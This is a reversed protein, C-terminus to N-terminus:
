RGQSKRANGAKREHPPTAPVAFLNQFESDLEELMANFPLGIARCLLWLQLVDLRTDGTEWRSILRQMQQRQRAAAKDTLGTSPALLEAVQDQSLGARLRAERLRAM